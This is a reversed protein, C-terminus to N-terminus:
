TVAGPSGTVSHNYTWTGDPTTRTLIAPSGDACNVGNTGGSYQYSVTGGTPFTISSIRGTYYGSYGPTPEYSFSYQSGDPLVISTVFNGSRIVDFVNSCQFNTRTSLGTLNVTVTETEGAPGTYTYKVPTASYSGSVTVASTGLTDVFTSSGSNNLSIRNGNADTFSPSGTPLHGIEAIEPQIYDGGPSNVWAGGNTVNMVYGSGDNASGSQKALVPTCPTSNAITTKLNAFRHTAGSPDIYANYLYEDYQYKTTGYYCNFQQIRYLAEGAVSLAPDGWGVGWVTSPLFQYSSSFATPVMTSASDFLLKVNMPMMRGARSFVPVSVHANLNGLNLVDVGGDQFSGFQPLGVAPGVQAVSFTAIGSVLAAIVVIHVRTM